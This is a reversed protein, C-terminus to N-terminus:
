HELQTLNIVKLQQMMNSNLYSGVTVVEGKRNKRKTDVTYYDAQVMPNGTNQNRKIDRIIGTLMGAASSWQIREGVVGYDSLQKNSM